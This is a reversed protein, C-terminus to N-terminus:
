NLLGEFTNDHLAPYAETNWVDQHGVGRGLVKRTAAGFLSQLGDLGDQGPSIDRGFTLVEGTAINKAHLRWLWAAGVDRIVFVFDGSTFNYRKNTYPRDVTWNSGDVEPTPLTNM